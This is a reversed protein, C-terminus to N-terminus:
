INCFFDEEVFQIGKYYKKVENLPVNYLENKIEYSEKLEELEDETLENIEFYEDREFDSFSIGLRDLKKVASILTYATYVCKGNYFIDWSARGLTTNYQIHGMEGGYQLKDGFEKVRFNLTPTDNNKLKNYNKQHVQKIKSNIFTKLEKINKNM